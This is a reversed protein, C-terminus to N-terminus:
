NTRIEETAIFTSMCIFEALMHECHNYCFMGTHKSLKACYPEGYAPVVYVMWGALRGCQKMSEM